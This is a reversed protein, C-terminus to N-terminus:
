RQWAGVLTPVAGCLAHQLWLCLTIQAKPEWGPLKACLTWLGMTYSPLVLLVSFCFCKGRGLSDELWAAGKHSQHRPAAPHGPEGDQLAGQDQPGQCLDRPPSAKHEEAERGQRRHTCRPSTATSLQAQLEDAAQPFPLVLDEQRREASLRSSISRCDATDLM